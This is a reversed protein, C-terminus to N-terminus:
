FIPLPFKSLDGNYLGKRRTHWLSALNRVYIFCIFFPTFVWKKFPLFAFFTYFCAIKAVMNVVVIQIIMSGNSQHKTLCKHIIFFDWYFYFYNIKLLQFETRINSNFFRQELFISNNENNIAKIWTYKYHLIM